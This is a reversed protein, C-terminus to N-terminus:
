RLHEFLRKVEDEPFGFAKARALLRLRKIERVKMYIFAAAVAISLPEVVALHRLRKEVIEDFSEELSGLDEPDATALAAKLDPDKVVSALASLLEDRERFKLLAAFEKKRLRHGGEIFFATAGEASYGEGAIKLLTMINREDIRLRLSDLAIGHSLNKKGIGSILYDFVFLDLNIEMENINGHRAYPGLGAKLPRAYPSGWTELFNILDNVDKSSLLAKIAAIDFEGAPVLTNLIEERRINKAVGRLIAKLDYMEWISLISKLLPRAPEPAAEWLVALSGALSDTLAASLAEDANEFRAGATVMYPGYPTSKLRDFYQSFGELKLLLGYEAENLLRGMLGRVRANFYSLDM